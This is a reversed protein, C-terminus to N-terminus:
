TIEQVSKFAEVSFRSVHNRLTTLCMRLRGLYLYLTNQWLILWNYLIIVYTRYCSFCMHGLMKNGFLFFINKFFLFIKLFTKGREFKKLFFFLFFRKFLYLREFSTKAYFDHSKEKLGFSKKMWFLFGYINQLFRKLRFFVRGKRKLGKKKRLFWPMKGFVKKELFHFSTKGKCSQKNLLTKKKKKKKFINFINEYLKGHFLVFIHTEM